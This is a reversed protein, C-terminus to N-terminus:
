GMSLLRTTIQPMHLVHELHKRITKSNVIHKLLVAGKCEVYIMHAATTVPTREYPKYKWYKIFDNLNFCFHLSAGSDLFWTPKTWCEKCRGCFIYLNGHECKSDGLNVSTSNLACSYHCGQSDVKNRPMVSLGGESTLRTAGESTGAMCRLRKLPQHLETFTHVLCPLSSTDSCYHNVPVSSGIGVCM